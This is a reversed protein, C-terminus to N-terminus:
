LRTQPAVGLLYRVLPVSSCIRFKPWPDISARVSVTEGNEIEKNLKQKIVVYYVPISQHREIENSM